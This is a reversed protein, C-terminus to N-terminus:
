YRGKVCGTGQRLIESLGTLNELSWLVLHRSRKVCVVFVVFDISSWRSPAVSWKAIKSLTLCLFNLLFILFSFFFLFTARQLWVLVEDHWKIFFKTNLRNWCCWYFSGNSRSPLRMHRWPAVVEKMKIM